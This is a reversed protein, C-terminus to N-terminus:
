VDPFFSEFTLWCMKVKKVKSTLFKQNHVSQILSFQGAWYQGCQGVDVKLNIVRMVTLIVWLKNLFTENKQHHGLLTVLEKHQFACNLYFLQLSQLYNSNSFYAMQSSLYRTKTFNHLCACVYILESSMGGSDLCLCKTLMNCVIIFLLINSNVRWFIFTNEKVLVDKGKTYTLSYYIPLRSIIM